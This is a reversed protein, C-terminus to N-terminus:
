ASWGEVYLKGVAMAMFLWGAGYAIWSIRLCAVRWREDRRHTALRPFLGALAFCFGVIFLVIPYFVFADVRLAVGTTALVVPTALNLVIALILWLRTRPM